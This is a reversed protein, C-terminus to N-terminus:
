RGLDFLACVAVALADAAHDSGLDRTSLLHEMMHIMQCKPASGSGCVWKKVERPSYSKLLRGEALLKVVGVVQATLMASPANRALYVEEVAVADPQYAQIVRGLERHIKALRSPLPSDSRTRVTGFVLPRLGEKSGEVVGYGCASLGPDVGVVRM